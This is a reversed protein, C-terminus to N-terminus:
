KKLVKLMATEDCRPFKPCNICDSWVKHPLQS